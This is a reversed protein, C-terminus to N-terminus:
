NRTIYNCHKSTEQHIFAVAAHWYRKAHSGLFEIERRAILGSFLYFAVVDKAQNYHAFERVRRLLLSQANM